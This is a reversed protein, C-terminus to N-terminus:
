DKLFVTNTCDVWVPPQTKGSVVGLWITGHFLFKVREWFPAKWKSICEGKETKHIALTGCEEDTMSKPKQLVIHQEKFETPKM